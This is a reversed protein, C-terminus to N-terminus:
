GVIGVALQADSMVGTVPQAVTVAVHEVLVAMEAPVAAHEGVVHHLLGLCPIVNEGRHDRHSLLMSPLLLIYRTFM